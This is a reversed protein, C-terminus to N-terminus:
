QGARGKHLFRGFLHRRSENIFFDMFSETEVKSRSSHYSFPLSPLAEKKNNRGGRAIEKVTEFQEEINDISSDIPPLKGTQKEIETRFLGELFFFIKKKFFHIRNLLKKDKKEILEQQPDIQNLDFNKKEKRGGIRKKVWRHKKMWRHIVISFFEAIRALLHVLPQPM